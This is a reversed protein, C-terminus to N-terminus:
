VVGGALAQGLQRLANSMEEASNGGIAGIKQLTETFRIVQDNNGGLDKLTFNLAEWLKVTDGLSAGTTRAIESLRGYTVAAEDSSESLRGVRAQMLVFEESLRQIAMLTSATVM